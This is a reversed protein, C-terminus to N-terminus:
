KEELADRLATLASVLRVERHELPGGKDMRELVLEAAEVVDAILPLADALQAPVLRCGGSEYWDFPGTGLERLRESASM